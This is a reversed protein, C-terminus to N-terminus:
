SADHSVAAGSTDGLAARAHPPASGAPHVASHVANSPADPMVGRVPPKIVDLARRIAGVRRFSSLNAIIGILVISLIMPAEHAFAGASAPALLRSFPVLGAAGFLYTARENRRMLGRPPEVGQAEAKASTYSVTYAGVFAIAIAVTMFLSSRYYVLLGVFFASEAYRDVLADLTEGSESSSKTLRAIMGDLSDCFSAITGLFTALGFWGFAVAVGAGVGPLLSFWTVGAPTVGRRILANAFPRLMWQAFEVFHLPLLVSGGDKDARASRVRGLMSVRVQYAALIGLVITWIAIGFGLDIL